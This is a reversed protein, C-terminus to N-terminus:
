KRNGKKLNKSMVAQTIGTQVMSILGGIFWYVGMAAPLFFGMIITFILMGWTVFKMTRGQQDQAPNRSTKAINKMRRKAIIRPLLMAMIQTAAMMLFLILATWWGYTNLYWTGNVNFLISQITDSLRVNLFEGTALVSSGQLGSWVCIFLPFQIILVLMQRMPHIGNRKYLAMQEQSMRQKEQPNTNANPYKQQLKALEPQLAQMKQTDMTSRFSIALLIGRVIITVIVIALLQSWGKIMPDIGFAIKDTLWSIPYVLLGELFGKSWAYGWDKTSINVRWDSLPGYHGYLDDQTAICSRIQAVQNNVASKYVSVFDKTPISYPNLEKFGDGTKVRLEEQWADFFGWMTRVGNVSLSSFKVDGHQRLISNTFPVMDVVVSPDTVFYPNVVLNKNVTGIEIASEGPVGITDKNYESGVGIKAIKASIEPKAISEAWTKSSGYDIGLTELTAAKLVYDDMLGFYYVSPINLGNNISNKIINGQLLGKSKNATFELTKGSGTYPVYKYVQDNVDGFAPGAIAPIGFAEAETSWAEEQLIADKLPKREEHTSNKIAEYDAKSLYVTVGQEYPYAIAARDLDSCFNATCSTLLVAGLGLAAFGLLKKHKALKL